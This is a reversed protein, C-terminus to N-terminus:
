GGPRACYLDRHAYVFDGRQAARVEELKIVYRGTQQPKVEQDLLSVAFKYSGSTPAIVSASESGEQGTPSDFEGLSVSKPDTVRIVIDVGHQEVVVLIRSPEEVHVEFLHVEGPRITREVPAGTNLTNTEQAVITLSLVFLSILLAPTRRM